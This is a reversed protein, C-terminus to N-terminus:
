NMEVKSLLYEDFNVRTVIDFYGTFVEQDDSLLNGDDDIQVGYIHRFGMDFMEEMQEDTMGWNVDEIVSRIKMYQVLKKTKKSHHRM